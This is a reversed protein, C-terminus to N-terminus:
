VQYNGMQRALMGAQTRNSLGLMKLIASVHIKITNESLALDFAIEKNSKAKGLEVLIEMQRPTLRNLKQELGAEQPTQEEANVRIALADSIYCDGRMASDIAKLFEEESAAKEVYAAAGSALAQRVHFTDTSATIVVVPLQPALEHLKRIFTFGNMDPMFLDVIAISFDNNQRVTELANAACDAELVWAQPFLRMIGDYLGKRMLTHDDAILIKM